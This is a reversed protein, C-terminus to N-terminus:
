KSFPQQFFHARSLGSLHYPIHDIGQEQCQLQRIKQQQKRKGSAFM